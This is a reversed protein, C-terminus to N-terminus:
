ENGHYATGTSQIMEALLMILEQSGNPGQAVDGAPHEPLVQFTGGNIIATEKRKFKNLFCKLGCKLVIEMGM